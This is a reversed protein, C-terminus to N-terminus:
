AAAVPAAATQSLDRADRNTVSQGILEPLYWPLRHGSPQAPRRTVVESPEAKGHAEPERQRLEARGEDLEPLHEARPRVEDPVVDRVFQRVEL